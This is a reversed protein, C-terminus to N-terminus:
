IHPGDSGRQRLPVSEPELTARHRAAARLLGLQLQEFSPLPGSGGRESVPAPPAQRKRRRLDAGARAAPAIGPTRRPVVHPSAGYNRTGPPHTVDLPRIRRHLRWEVRLYDRQGQPTRVHLLAVYGLEELKLNLRRVTRLSRSRGRSALAVARRPKTTDAHQGRALVLRYLGVLHVWATDRGRLWQALGQPSEPAPWLAEYRRDFEQRTPQRPEYSLSATLQGPRANGRRTRALQRRRRGSARGARRCQERKRNTLAQGAAERRRHVRLPRCACPSASNTAEDIQWGDDCGLACISEEAHEGRPQLETPQLLLRPIPSGDQSPSDGPRSM